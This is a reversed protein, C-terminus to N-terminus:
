VRGHRTIAKEYKGNKKKKGEREHQTRPSNRLEMKWLVLQKNLEVQDLAEGM